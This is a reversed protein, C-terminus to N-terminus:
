SVRFTNKEPPAFSAMVTHGGIGISLSQVVLNLADIWIKSYLLEAWEIRLMEQVGEIAGDLHLSRVLLFHCILFAFVTPIQFLLFILSAEKIYEHVYILPTTRTNVRNQVFSITLWIIFISYAIGYNFNTFSM